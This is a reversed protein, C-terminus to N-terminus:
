NPPLPGAVSAAVWSLAVDLLVRGGAELADVVAVAATLGALPDAVADGVFRPTGDIWDM